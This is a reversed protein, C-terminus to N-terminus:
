NLTHGGVGVWGRQLPLKEYILFYSYYCLAKRMEAITQHDAYMQLLQRKIIPLSLVTITNFQKASPTQYGASEPVCHQMHTM